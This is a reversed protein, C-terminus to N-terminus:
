FGSQTKVSLRNYVMRCTYDQMLARAWMLMGDVEDSDYDVLKQRLEQDSVADYVALVWDLDSDAMVVYKLGTIM